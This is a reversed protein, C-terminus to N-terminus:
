IKEHKDTFYQRTARFFKIGFGPLNRIDREFSDINKHTFKTGLLEEAISIMRIFNEQKMIGYYRSDGLGKLHMNQPQPQKTM